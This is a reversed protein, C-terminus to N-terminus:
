GPLCGRALECYAAVQEQQWARDRGLEEAMISAVAPAIEMSVRADLILARTRRSLVDEVTRAMEERVAWVVDGATYPLEPHLKRGWRPDSARLAEVAPADSGYGQWSETPPGDTWGHIRLHETRSPRQELGAVQAAADVADEGMKRYTTWKGGIITVLRSPSVLVAHERSLISTDRPAGRHAVLSRLGAFACRVDQRRPARALFRGAHDLLFDVEEDLPRPEMEVQRVPTETTGLIVRGHWPIAFLVRGDDTKPILMACEGPLFDADLVLHAGQSPVVVNGAGPEDMRRVADAFVGTANVVARAPLEYAALTERDEAIVGTIRGGGVGAKLLGVVNVYNVAVGGLDVLTRALAVVLRADDFQGDYFVLGGRVRQAKLGPLSALVEERSLPRSAGLKLRGALVDYFRLGARYYVREWSSYTPVILALPRVLHPANRMLLGRERLSERVLPVDGQALYRVGGHILKTSRSSTGSGFDGQELLLTRYGRAAAAIATGLGTAGGGIVILDWAGRADRMADIM